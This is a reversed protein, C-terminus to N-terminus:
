EVLAGDGLNYGSLMLLGHDHIGTEHGFATLVGIAQIAEPVAAVAPRFSTQFDGRQGPEVDGVVAGVTETHLLCRWTSLRRIRLGGTHIDIQLLEASYDLRMVQLEQAIDDGIASVAFLFEDSTHPSQFEMLHALQSGIGMQTM